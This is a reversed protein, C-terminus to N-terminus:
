GPAVLGSEYARVVAQTRDRAGLKALVSSVHTKVTEPSVLLEAAIEANTHGAAMRRLVDLERGTLRAARLAAASAPRAYSTALRRIAAPFLLSDSEVLLRIARVLEEPEARKLLFGAAGARLAEFVHDDSEFTTLILIPPPDDVQAVIRRTAEIGDVGPMRIDMLVVGPRLRRVLPAVGAGDGAEGVVELDPECDILTRLGARVLPEDDVLLVGISV